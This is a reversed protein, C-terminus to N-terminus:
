GIAPEDWRDIRLREEVDVSLQEPAFADERPYGLALYCPIEYEVPIGLTLRVHDTESPRSIIKTVGFVGESAAAVLVNELVAWISAFANLEHLSEKAGLLAGQQVFCPVVLAGADLIMSAQKPIADYYMAYQRDDTMSWGDLLERLDEETREIQFGGILRRRQEPDEVLVFQWRRLHNHSPARMGADLIRSLTDREIPRTDFDRMTRRAAIAEYVNM